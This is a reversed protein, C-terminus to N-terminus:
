IYNFIEDIFKLESLKICKDLKDKIDSIELESLNKTAQEIFIMDNNTSKLNNKYYLKEHIKEGNRLGTIKIKNILDERDYNKLIRKVLEYINIPDGMNLVFIWGENSSFKVSQLTLNVADTITMFYRTAEKHTVTIDRNNNIQNQIKPILSGSSGIVNGFRVSCYKNNNSKNIKNFSNTIIEGLRKSKGMFNIPEVAKDTSVFVFNLDKIKKSAELINILSFINNYVGIIPNDEVIEVHKYAAAHFIYDPKVELIIKEIISYFCLNVLFLKIKIDDGHDIKKLNQILNSIGIENSDVLILESPKQKILQYALEEGITGAAGSIIIKKNKYPSSDKDIKSIGIIDKKFPINKFEQKSGDISKIEEYEIKYFKIKQIIENIKFSSASPLCLFIKKIKNKKIFRDLGNFSLIPLNNIYRGIKNVDDDIFGLPTFNKINYIYEIAAVGNNGAGYILCPNESKKKEGRNSISIFTRLLIRINISILFFLFHVLFVNQYKLFIM